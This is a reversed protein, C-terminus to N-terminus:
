NCVRFGSSNYFIAKCGGCYNSTCSVNPINCTTVACPDAFCQVVSSGSPCPHACDLVCKSKKCRPAGSCNKVFQNQPNWCDIVSACTGSKRCKGTSCFQGKPCDPQKQCTPCKVVNWACTQLKQNYSCKGLGGITVGDPCLVNPKGQQPGCSQPSCTCNTYKKSLAQVQNRQYTNLSSWPAQFGCSNISVSKNSADLNGSLFYTTGSKLFVVGCAASESNTTITTTDVGKFTDCGKWVRVITSSYSVVFSSSVNLRKVLAAQLIVDANQFAKLLTPEGACKCAEASWPLSLVVWFCLQVKGLLM